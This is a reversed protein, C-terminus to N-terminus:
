NPLTEQHNKKKKKKKKVLSSTPFSFFSLQLPTTPLDTLRVSSGSVELFAM